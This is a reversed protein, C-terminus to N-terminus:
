NSSTLNDEHDNLLASELDFNEEKETQITKTHHNDLIDDEKYSKHV